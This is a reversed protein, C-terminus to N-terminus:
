NQRIHSAYNTIPRCVLQSTSQRQTKVRHHAALIAKFVNRLKNDSNGFIIPITEISLPYTVDMSTSKYGNRPIAQYIRSGKFLTYNSISNVAKRLDLAVLFTRSCPRNLNFGRSIQHYINHLATTNEKSEQFYTPTPSFLSACCDWYRPLPSLLSVPMCIKAM